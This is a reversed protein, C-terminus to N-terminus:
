STSLIKLRGAQQHNNIQHNYLRHEPLRATKGPMIPVTQEGVFFSVGNPAKLQIPVTQKCVNLVTVFKVNIEADRLKKIERQTLPKSM